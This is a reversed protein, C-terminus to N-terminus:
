RITPSSSASRFCPFIETVEGMARARMPRTSPSATVTWVGPPARSYSIWSISNMSSSTASDSHHALSQPTSGRARGVAGGGEAAALASWASTAGTRNATLSSKAPAARSAPKEAVRRSATARARASPAGASAGSRPSSASASRNSARPPSARRAASIRTAPWRAASTSTGRSTASAARSPVTFGAPGAFAGPALSPRAAPAPGSAPM